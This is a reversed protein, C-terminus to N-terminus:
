RSPGSLKMSINATDPNNKLHMHIQTLRRQCAAHRDQLQNELQSLKNNSGLTQHFTNNATNASTFAEQISQIANEKRSSIQTRLNNLNQKMNDTSITLRDEAKITQKNQDKIDIGVPLMEQGFTTLELADLEQELKALAQAREDQADVENSNQATNDEKEHDNPDEVLGSFRDAPNTPANYAANIDKNAQNGLVHGSVHQIAEGAQMALHPLALVTAGAVKLAGLIIPIAFVPM